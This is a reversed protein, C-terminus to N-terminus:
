KAAAQTLEITTGVLAWGFDILIIRPSKYPNPSIEFKIRFPPEALLYSLAGWDGNASVDEGQEPRDLSLASGSQWEWQYPSDSSDYTMISSVYAFESYEGIGEVEFSVGSAAVDAKYKFGKNADNIEIGRAEINVPHRKDGDPETRDCSCISLLALVAAIYIKVTDM